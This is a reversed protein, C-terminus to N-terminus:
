KGETGDDGAVEVIGSSDDADTLAVKVLDGVTRGTM